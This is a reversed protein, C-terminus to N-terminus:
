LNLSSCNVFDVYVCLSKAFYAALGGISMLKILLMGPLHILALTLETGEKNYICHLGLCKNSKEPKHCELLDCCYMKSVGNPEIRHSM